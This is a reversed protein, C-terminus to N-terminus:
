WCYDMLLFVKFDWDESLVIAIKCVSHDKAIFKQVDALFLFSLLSISYCGFLDILMTLIMVFIDERKCRVTNINNNLM